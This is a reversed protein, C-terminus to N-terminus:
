WNIRNKFRCEWLIWLSLWGYSIKFITYYQFTKKLLHAPLFMLKLIESKSHTIRVNLHNIWSVNKNVQSRQFQKWEQFNSQNRKLFNDVKERSNHQINNEHTVELARRTEEEQLYTNTSKGSFKTKARLSNKILYRRVQRSPKDRKSKLKSLTQM